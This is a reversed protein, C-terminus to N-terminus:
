SNWQQLGVPLFDEDSATLKAMDIFPSPGLIKELVELGVIDKAILENAVQLFIFLNELFGIPWLYKWVAELKEKNVSLIHEVRKNAEDLIKKIEDIVKDSLPDSINLKLGAESEPYALFSSKLWISGIKDSM